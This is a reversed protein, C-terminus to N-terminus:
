DEDVEEEGNVFIGFKDYEEDKPWDFVMIMGKLTDMDIDGERREVNLSLGKAEIYAYM